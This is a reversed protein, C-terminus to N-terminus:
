PYIGSLQNAGRPECSQSFEPTTEKAGCILRRAIMTRGEVTKQLTYFACVICFARSPRRPKKKQSKSIELSWVVLESPWRTEPMIIHDAPTIRWDSALM